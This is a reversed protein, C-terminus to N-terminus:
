ARGAAAGDRQQFRDIVGKADSIALAQDSWALGIELAPFAIGDIVVPVQDARCIRAHWLGAGVEFSTIEFGGYIM